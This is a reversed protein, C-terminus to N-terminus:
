TSSLTSNWVYFYPLPFYLIINYPILIIIIIIQLKNLIGFFYGPMQLLRRSHGIIFSVSHGGLWAYANEETSVEHDVIYQTLVM